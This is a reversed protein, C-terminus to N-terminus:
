WGLINKFSEDIYSAATDMDDAKEHGYIGQTDMNKSHGMVLKKLSDPM